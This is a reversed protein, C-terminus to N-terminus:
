HGADSDRGKTDSRGGRAHTDVADPLRSVLRGGDVPLAAGTIFSAADSALFAVAAAVEDPRGLRGIVTAPPMAATGTSGAFNAGEICAPLVANVRVGSRGAEAALTRTLALIGGKSAAYAAYSPVPLLAQIAAVNVIAGKGAACLHALATRCLTAGAVLNVALVAEFDAEDSDALLVRRGHYAANNVLIDLRGHRRVVADVLAGRDAAVSLDAPHVSDLASLDDLEDAIDSGAVLAGHEQLTAAIVAGIGRGAGTVLAVRGSLDAPM